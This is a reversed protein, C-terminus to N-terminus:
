IRIRITKVEFIGFRLAIRGDQLPLTEPSNELMDCLVAEKVPLHISLMCDTEAKKAEYLRLILDGSGDQAPKVTDIFVNAADLSFASFAESTGEATLPPVNLEYAQRVVPSDLFSGEWAVFSYTFDHPGQDSSMEPSAGGRLLTLRLESGHMSIGYKSDNLLAAGRGQDCLASYRQNCVEFRDSDYPRSRHTPRAMYGFQIENIGETAQVNVPFAVKLLRHTQAWEVHTVFDLRPSGGDLRIDQSIVSDLVRRELRIVARLGGAEQVKLQVPSEIDVPQLEYNSDIDWADFKRPVDKYMLFRNMAGGAYERGDKKTIFSIVEGKKNLAARILENEIVAGEATLEAKVTQCDSSQQAPVLSLAGLSPLSVRALVGNETTQTPVALGELTQAGRAFEGPLSIVAERPFSLSNFVTLGRGEKVLARAAARCVADASEIIQRHQARAEVYVSAISSGPLIDHFQNLLLLKWAENMSDLPYSFGKASALAGWVEAERLGLEGKRNGKKIAAQTTYVGRHASFYLEGVYTHKPGGAKEMDHFFDLPSAHRLRPMGELDHERRIQEMDDRCPGAGGDGYGYPFLFATLGRKQVRKKWTESIERPDTRYTYSTPLFTDIESGDAGQWTFYHYPFRDGENYSWFIKQTVLYKVGCGRLIQPLAASYGFTDPLWLLESDIGFVERFYQKGHLLQRILSEGSTMNTDPEVYMAGDAVWRGEKAAKVVREFLEPYYRQCMEYSAPQSQLFVYDKYEDLLRLQAAFTRAVKRHTEKMPWLWALDLHANGVAYFDPATSGNVAALAPKLAERAARYSQDRAPAGQEFDAALSYRELASAIEDARLSEPDVEELLQSLVRTDIMLQYADENWEGFTCRGMVAREGETKPDRYSGPLLPGTACGGLVSEPFYHGAYSEVYLSFTEGGSAERSLCNDVIYHLPNSVWHARYTGFALSDVFLTAEGGTPLDMVIRKGAAEPPLTVETRLWCYQFTKGWRTGPPMPQYDLSMAEELSLHDMTLCGEFRIDGMPRYIDQRLTNDWHELRERWESHMYKM